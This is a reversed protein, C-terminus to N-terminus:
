IPPNVKKAYFSIDESLDDGATTKITINVHKSSTTLNVVEIILSNEEKIVSIYDNGENVEYVFTKCAGEGLISIDFRQPANEYVYDINNPTINIATAPEYVVIKWEAYVENEGVRNSKIRLTLNNSEQSVKNGTLTFREKESSNYSAYYYEQYGKGKDFEIGDDITGEPLIKLELVKHWGKVIEITGNAPIEAGNEYLKISEVAEKYSIVFTIKNSQVHTDNSELWFEVTGASKGQISSFASNREIIGEQSYKAVLTEANNEPTKSITISCEEGAFLQTKDASIEISLNSKVKITLENDSKINGSEACVTVEGVSLGRLSNENIIEAITSSNEVGKFSFTVDANADIPNLVYSLQISEGIFIESKPASITFSILAPNEIVKVPIANSKLIGMGDEVYITTEGVSKGKLNGSQDVECISSDSSFYKYGNYYDENVINPDFNVHFSDAKTEDVKLTIENNLSDRVKLELEVVKISITEIEIEPKSLSHASINVPGKKLGKLYYRGDSTSEIFGVESNSSYLNIDSSPLNSDVLIELSDGVGMYNVESDISISLTFVLSSFKASIVIGNKPMEIEIEYVKNEVLDGISIEKNNITYSELAFGTNPTFTFVVNEGEYVSGKNPVITGNESPLIISSYAPKGAEGKGGSSGNSGNEGDPGDSGDAGDQGDDGKNNGIKTWKGDKKLYVDSTSLDLYLDGENGDEEKPKGEGTLWMTADDGDVGDKGDEGPKGDVGPEGQDGKPGPNCSVVSFLMGLVSFLLGFRIIKNM